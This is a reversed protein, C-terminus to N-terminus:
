TVLEKKCKKWYSFFSPFYGNVSSIWDRSDEHGRYNYNLPHEKFHIKEPSLASHLEEFEGVYLKIDPINKTLELAFNMCKASIPHQRFKSPEILFIRQFNEGEHWSPDINYYNYILTEQKAINQHPKLDAVDTKVKLPITKVLVEPTKLTSFV